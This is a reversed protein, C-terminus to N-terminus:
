NVRYKNFRGDFTIQEFGCFKIFKKAPENHEDVLATLEGFQEVLTDIIFPLQRLHRMKIGNFLLLWMGEAETLMTGHRFGALMIVEDGDMACLMEDTNAFVSAADGAQVFEFLSIPHLYDVFNPNVQHVSKLTIM